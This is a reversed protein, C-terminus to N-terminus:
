KEYRVTFTPGKVRFVTVSEGVGFEAAADETKLREIEGEDSSGKLNEAPNGTAKGKFIIQKQVLVVLVVIGVLLLTVVIIQKYYKRIFDKNM